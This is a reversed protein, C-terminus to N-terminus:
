RLKFGQLLYIGQALFLFCKAFWLSLYCLDIHTYVANSLDYLICYQSKEQQLMIIDSLCPVTIPQMLVWTTFPRSYRNEKWTVINMTTSSKTNGSAKNNQTKKTVINELFYGMEKTKSSTFVKELACKLKRTFNSLAEDSVISFFGIVIIGASVNVQGWDCGRKERTLPVEWM